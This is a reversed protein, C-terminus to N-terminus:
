KVANSSFLIFRRADYGEESMIEYGNKLYSGLEMSSYKIVRPDPNIKLKKLYMIYKIGWLHWRFPNVNQFPIPVSGSEV